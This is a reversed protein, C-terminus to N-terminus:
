DVADTREITEDYDKSRSAAGQRTVPRFESKNDNFPKADIGNMLFHLIWKAARSEDVDAETGFFRGVREGYVQSFVQAGFVCNVRWDMEAESVDPCARRMLKLFLEVPEEFMKTMETIVTPSPDMLARGFLLHFKRHAQPRDADVHAATFGIFFTPEILTRLVELVDPTAGDATQSELARLRRLHEEKLPLFRREFLGRFLERKSGWYHKLTGLNVHARAAIARITTGEYGHKGFIDEAANLFKTMTKQAAPTASARARATM